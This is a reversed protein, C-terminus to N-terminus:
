SCNSLENEVARRIFESRSIGLRTYARTVAELRNKPISFTIMAKEQKQARSRVDSATLTYGTLDGSKAEEIMEAFERQTIGFDKLIKKDRESIKM